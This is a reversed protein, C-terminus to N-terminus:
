RQDNLAQNFRNVNEESFPPPVIQFLFILNMSHDSMDTIFTGASYLDATVNTFIHEFYPFFISFMYTESKYNNSHATIFYNEALKNSNILLLNINSDTFVLFMLHPLYNM